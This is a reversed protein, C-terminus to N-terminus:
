TGSSRCHLSGYWRFRYCCCYSCRFCRIQKKTIRKFDFLFIKSHYADIPYAGYWRSAVIAAGIGFIFLAIAAGVAYIIRLRNLPAVTGDTIMLQEVLLFSTMTLVLIFYISKYCM